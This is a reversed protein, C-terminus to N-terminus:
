HNMANITKQNVHGEVKNREMEVGQKDENQIYDNRRDRWHFTGEYV